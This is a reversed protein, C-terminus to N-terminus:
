YGGVIFVRKLNDTSGGVTIVLSTGSFTTTPPELAIADVTHKFGKVYLVQTMGYKSVDITVTDTDDVTDATEVLLEKIQFPSNPIQSAGTDQEYVFIDGAAVAAM